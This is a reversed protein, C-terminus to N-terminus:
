QKELSENASSRIVTTLDDKTGFAGDRGASSIEATEGTNRYRFPRGWTDVTYDPRVYPGSWGTLGSNTALCSVWNSSPPLRGCDKRFSQIGVAIHALRAESAKVEAVRRYGIPTFALLRYLTFGAVGVIVVGVFWRVSLRIGM